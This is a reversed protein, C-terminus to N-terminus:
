KGGEAFPDTPVHFMTIQGGTHWFLVNDSETLNGRQVCDILGAMAKATYVPDLFIGESRALLNMAGTSECTDVGYGEGVFADVVTVEKRLTYRPLELLEAIGDIIMKVESSVSSAPDDPSIGVINVNGLGFLQCGVELGAQTGGSSSSHFIYNIRIGIAELQVAAERVASVYGLAGLPLSAGLPIEGVTKGECRLRDAVAKMTPVREERSSVYNIEAGLMEALHLSAPRTSRSSQSLLGSNTVLVCQLGLRACLAATIRAHNSREGGITVVVDTGASILQAFLYELKRVKNGGFGFGTYDDRKMFLRPGGGLAARLNSLEEIPTPYFGCSLHPTSDLRKIAHQLLPVTAAMKTGRCSWGEDLADVTGLSLFFM